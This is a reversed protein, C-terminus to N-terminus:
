LQHFRQASRALESCISNTFNGVILAHVYNDELPSHVCDLGLKNVFGAIIFYLQFYEPDLISANYNTLREIDVSLGDEGKKPKFAFSTVRGDPKIFSPNRFPVRKLLHDEDTINVRDFLKM